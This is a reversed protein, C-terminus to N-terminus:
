AHPAVSAPTNRTAPKSSRSAYAQPAWIPTPRLGGGLRRPPMGECAMRDRPWCTDFLMNTTTPKCTAPPDVAVVVQPRQSTIRRTIHVDSQGRARPPETADREARARTDAMGAIMLVHMCVERLLPRLNPHHVTMHTMGSEAITTAHPPMDFEAYSPGRACRLRM